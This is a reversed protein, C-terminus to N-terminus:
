IYLNKHIGYTRNVITWRLLLRMARDCAFRNALPWFEFRVYITNIAATLDTNYTYYCCDDTCCVAAGPLYIHNPEPETTNTAHADICLVVATGRVLAAATTGPHVM